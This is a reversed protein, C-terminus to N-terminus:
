AGEGQHPVTPSTGPSSLDTSAGEFSDVCTSYSSAMDVSNKLSYLVQLRLPREHRVLQPAIPVGKVRLRQVCGDPDSIEPSDAFCSGEPYDTALRKLVRHQECDNYDRETQLSRAFLQATLEQRAILPDGLKIAAIDVGSRRKMLELTLVLLREAVGNLVEDPEPDGTYASLKWSSPQLLSRAKSANLEIADMLGLLSLQYPPTQALRLNKNHNDM